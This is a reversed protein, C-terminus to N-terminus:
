LRKGKSGFKFNQILSLNSLIHPLFNTLKNIQRLSVLNPTIIEHVRSYSLFMFYFMIDNNNAIHNSSHHYFERIRSIKM